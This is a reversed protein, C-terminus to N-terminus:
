SALPLDLLFETGEGPTSTFHISGDMQEILNKSITLGLGTGSINEGERGARNFPEFIKKQQEIDIGHGTDTIEIILRNKGSTYYKVSVTGEDKNYKVANSLLNLLIQKLRKHDTIINVDPKNHSKDLIQINKNNAVPMIMGICFDLIERTSHHELKLNTNETEVKSLELVDNILDQLHNGAQIIEAANDKTTDDNSKLQILQAFGLIANMPTKLEHTISSLFLSKSRNASEAQIKAEKLHTIDTRISVYRYPENNEDLFPSVTSEVWYHHGNKAKNCVEGQWVNGSSITEWLEQYFEPPHIDSKLIRHNQGILEDFDYGSIECFKDNAYIIRGYKDTVSVIAHHDLTDKQHVLEQNTTELVGQTLELKKLLASTKSITVKYIFFMGAIVMIAIIIDSMLGTKAVGDAKERIEHQKLEFSANLQDLLALVKNQSPIVENNLKLLAQSQNNTFILDLISEFGPVLMNTIAIQAEILTKENKDLEHLMLNQRATAFVLGVRYFEMRLSDRKFHDKENIMSYTLLLRERAAIRMAKILSMQDTITVIKEKHFRTVEYLSYISISSLLLILITLLVLARKVIFQIQNQNDIKPHLDGSFM